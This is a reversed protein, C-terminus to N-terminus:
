ITGHVCMFWSWRPFYPRVKIDSRWLRYKFSLHCLCHCLFFEWFYVIEPLQNMQWMMQDVRRESEEKCSILFYDKGPYFSPDNKVPGATSIHEGYEKDLTLTWVPSAMDASGIWEMPGPILKPLVRFSGWKSNEKEPSKQNYKWPSNAKCVEDM